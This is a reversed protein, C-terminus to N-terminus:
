AKDHDRRYEALFSEMAFPEGHGPYVTRVEFRELKDLSAKCAAPDDM